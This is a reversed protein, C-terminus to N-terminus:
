HMLANENERFSDFGLINHGPSGMAFRPSTTKITFLSTDLYAKIKQCM